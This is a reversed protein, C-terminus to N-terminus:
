PFDRLLGGNDLTFFQSGRNKRNFECYKTTYYLSAFPKTKGFIKIDVQSTFIYISLVLITQVRPGADFEGSIISFIISVPIFTARRFKEWPVWSSCLFTMSRMLSARSRRPIGQAIMSSVLPGSIRRPLNSPPEASSAVPECNVRTVESIMPFESRAVMDYLSRGLCIVAPHLIRRLSPAISSATVPQSSSLMTHVTTAPPMILFPLPTFIGFTWRSIGWRESLSM